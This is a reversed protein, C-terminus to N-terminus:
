CLESIFRALAGAPDEERMFREGVLFGRFGAARLERVVAPDSIGSESVLLPKEEEPIDAVAARMMAAISFSHGVDTRFTGLARNNVGLMDPIGAELYSLERSDHVELLVELGLSRATSLLDSYETKGLAAAILLIADAGYTKAEHVQHADIIFEKRLIPLDPVLPRVRRIYDIDGGFYKRDTLISVAAAGSAAYGSVVDEALAEERIWGKSPSKRKFEAIIGSPSKALAAKMSRKKLKALSLEERKHAIIEELIDAM